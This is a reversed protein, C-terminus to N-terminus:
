VVAPHEFYNQDNVQNIFDSECPSCYLMIDNMLRVDSIPWSYFFIWKLKLWFFYYVCVFTWNMTNVCLFILFTRQTNYKDFTMQTSLRLSISSPDFFDGM